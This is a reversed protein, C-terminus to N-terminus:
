DQLYTSVTRESCGVRDAIQRRTLGKEHLLRAEDRDEQARRQRRLVGQRSSLELIAKRVAVERLAEERGVHWRRRDRRWTGVPRGFQYHALHDIIARIYRAARWVVRGESSEVPLDNRLCFMRAQRRMHWELDDYHVWLRWSSGYEWLLWRFVASRYRGAALEDRWTVKPAVPTM